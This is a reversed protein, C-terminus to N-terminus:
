LFHFTAVTQTQRPEVTPTAPSLETDKLVFMAAAKTLLQFLKFLMDNDSCKQHLNFHETPLYKGVNRLINSGAPSSLSQIHLCYCGRSRRYNNALQYHCRM